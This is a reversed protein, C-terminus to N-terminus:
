FCNTHRSLTVYMKMYWKRGAVEFTQHKICTQMERVSSRYASPRIFYNSTRRKM